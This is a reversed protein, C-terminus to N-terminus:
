RKAKKKPAILRYVPVRSARGTIDTSPIWVCEMQGSKVLPTLVRQIAGRGVRLAECLENRTFAGDPRADPQRAAERIADLIESESITM